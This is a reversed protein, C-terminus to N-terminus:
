AAVVEVVHLMSRTEVVRAVRLGAKAVLSSWEETSREMGGVQALWFDSTCSCLLMGDGCRGDLHGDPAPLSSSPQHSPMIRLVCRVSRIRGVDTVHEVLLLKTGAAKLRPAVTKLIRLAEADSWDHLIVRMSYCSAEPPLDEFFSGPVFRARDVLSARHRQWYQKADEIVSARDFLVGQKMSPCQALVGGLLASLGSGLDVLSSCACWDYDTLTAALSLSDVTRMAHNFISSAEPHNDFYEWMTQNLVTQSGTQSSHGGGEATGGPGAGCRVQAVSEETQYLSREYHPWLLVGDEHLHRAFYYITFPHDPRLLDSVPTNVWNQTGPERQFFGQAALAKLM